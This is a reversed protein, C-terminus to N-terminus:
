PASVPADSPPAAAGPDVAPTGDQKELDFRQGDVDISKIQAGYDAGADPAAARAKKRKRRREEDDLKTVAPPAASLDVDDEFKPLTASYGANTGGKTTAFTTASQQAKEVGITASVSADKVAQQARLVQQQAEPSLVVGSGTTRSGGALGPIGQVWAESDHAGNSGVFPTGDGNGIASSNGIQGGYDNSGAFQGVVANDGTATATGSSSSNSITAGKIPAIPGQHTNSFHFAIHEEITEFYGGPTNGTLLLVELITSGNQGVFGGVYNRGIVNGTSYSNEIVNNINNQGAFGGVYDGTSTVNGTAYSNTISSGDVGAVEDGQFGVFGGVYSVSTGGTVGTVNVNGTAYSNDISSFETNTGAFGGIFRGAEGTIDGLAYSNTISSADNSGVFGGVRMAGGYLGGYLTIDVDAYNNILVGHWGNMGAFGGIFSGGYAAISGAVHSGQILGTNSGAFGGVRQYGSGGDITIDVVAYSNYVTGSNSGVFGGLTAKGDTGSTSGIVGKGVITGLAFSNSIVGHSQLSTALIGGESIGSISANTVGLNSVVAQGDWVYVVYADTTGLGYWVPRYGTLLLEGFLGGSESTLHSVVHGLGNVTGAMDIQEWDAIGSLDIDSGLAYRSTYDNGAMALLGAVDNIVTYTEVKDRTGLRLEGSGSFNVKGAFTGSDTGGQLTHLGMPSGDGNDGGGYIGTFGGSGSVAVVDNVYINQAADLTLTNTSYSVPAAVIIDGDLAHLSVNREALQGNIFGAGVDGSGDVTFANRTLSLTGNTGTNLTSSLLASEGALEILHGTISGGATVAGSLDAIAYGSLTNGAADDLALGVTGASALVVEGEGSNLRGSNTVGNESLLALFGDEGLVIEGENIVSGSGGSSAFLYHGNLFDSNSINLTSAVLAAANVSAGAGFLVGNTNIIFVKGNALLTGDIISRENGTVRNLAVSTSNPQIFTVTEDAAISFRLWDIIAKNTSQTITVTNESTAIAVTGDVIRSVVQNVDGVSIQGTSGALTYNLNDRQLTSLDFFSQTGEASGTMTAFGSLNVVDGELVNSAIIDAADIRTSGDAPKAGVLSLVLPNITATTQVQDSALLYNGADVGGSIAVGGISVTKNEDANKDAFSINAYSVTLDDGAILGDVTFGSTTAGATGDYTKDDVDFAASVTKKSISATTTTAVAYNGTSSGSGDTFTYNLYVTKDDGANKDSFYAATGAISLSEGAIVGDAISGLATLTAAATGDYERDAASVGSLTIEKPRVIVIGNVTSYQSSSLLASADYVGANLRGYYSLLGSADYSLVDAVTDGWQLGHIVFDSLSISEGYTTALTGITIPISMLIPHGNSSTGWSVGDSFVSLTPNTSVANWVAPDPLVTWPTTTASADLAGAGAGQLAGQSAVVNSSGATATAAGIAYVMTIPGSAFNGVFGGAYAYSYTSLQTATTAMASANGLAYANTVTGATQQGIFGGAMAVAHRNAATSGSTAEANVNGMAYANTITAYSQGILGGAYVTANGNRTNTATASVDGTAYINTLAGSAYGVFGGATVIMASTTGMTLATTVDGTAYANSIAASATGAFGGVTAGGTVNGSAYANSIESASSGVFGGVPGNNRSNTSGIVDGSAYANSITFSNTTSGILGGVAASTRAATYSVDGTAYSNAVSNAGVLIIGGYAANAGILGGVSTVSVMDDYNTVDSTSYSGKITGSNHGVLGGAYLASRYVVDGSSWSNIISGISAAVLGGVRQSTSGGGTVQATTYSNYLTGSSLVMLGGVSNQADISGTTFVNSINVPSLESTSSALIGASNTTVIQADTIGLNSITHRGAAATQGLITSLLGGHTSQLNSIVHGLGNINTFSIAGLTEWDEISGLDIDSGLIYNADSTIAQLGAIDDIVTYTTGGLSIGGTGSFNLKGAFTGTEGLAMYIGHASGDANTGTGYTAVFGAAGTANMVSNVYISNTAELTLTNAAWSVADNVTINGDAGSGAVSQITVNNSAIQESLTAGTIDGGYGITFGDPDILWTGSVGAAAKTTIVVGDVIKVEDGSTEIFGGDGGNPASADLRGSINAKGGHANIEIRGKRAGGTLSAMTRAQVIGTNNVQASLIADAARATMIVQGGDAEILQRNEVLANFVGKDITVDVLSNGGFNLTAKSGAALAVTGLTATIFGQNSVTNGLLSVYGGQTASIKGKNIVSATSSGSFSYNGALFDENSIDLTSAVLGGVNVRAADSFLIGNSNVLFIQGNANLAGQIISSENGVVRNLTISSADPQHFNVTEQPAVSFGQWNIIAKGTSQNIDTVPGTQSISAAGSVVNGGNPGALASNSSFLGAVAAAAVTSWSLEQGFWRSLWFRMTLRNGTANWAKARVFLGNARYFSHM